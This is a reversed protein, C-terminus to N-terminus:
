QAKEASEVIMKEMLLAAAIAGADVGEPLNVRYLGIASPGDGITADHSLLLESIQAATAESRFGVVLQNQVVAAGAQQYASEPRQTFQTTVLASLVAGLAFAAAILAARGVRAPQVAPGLDRKLRALGLDGPSRGLDDSRVATRIVELATLEARLDPDQELAKEVTAKEAESLTGNVYFPLLEAAKNLVVDGM